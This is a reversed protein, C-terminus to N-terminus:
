TGTNTASSAEVGWGRKWLPAKATVRQPRKRTSTNNEQQRPQSQAQGTAEGNRNAKPKSQQRATAAQKPNARSGRWQPQSQAQRAAHRTDAFSGRQQTHTRKSLQPARVTHTKCAAESSRASRPQQRKTHTQNSHDDASALHQRTLLIM